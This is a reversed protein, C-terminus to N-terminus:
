RTDIPDCRFLALDSEPFLHLSEGVTVNAIQVVNGNGKADTLAVFRYSDGDAHPAQVTNVVHHCTLFVERSVFFGSGLAMCNHTGNGAPRLRIVSFVTYRIDRVVEEFLRRKTNLRRTPPTYVGPM